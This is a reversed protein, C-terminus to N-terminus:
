GCADAAADVPGDAGGVSTLSQSTEPIPDPSAAGARGATSDPSPTCPANVLPRPVSAPWEAGDPWNESFWRMVEDYKRVTFTKDHQGLREFFRWDGAALRGLTPLAIKRAAAHREACALLGGKLEQEM